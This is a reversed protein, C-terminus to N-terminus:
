GTVGFMKDIDQTTFCSFFSMIGVNITAYLPTGDEDCITTIDSSVSNIVVNEITIYNGLRLTIMRYGPGTKFTNGALTPGPAFLVNGLAVGDGAQSPASLKLLARHRDKIETLSNDIAAFVFDVNFQMPSSSEWINASQMRLRDSIGAAGFAQQVMDASVIGRTKSAIADAVGSRSFPTSWNSSFEIHYREPLSAVIPFINRGTSDKTIDGRVSLEVQYNRSVDFKRTHELSNDSPVAATGQNTVTVM